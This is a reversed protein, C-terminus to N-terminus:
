QVTLSASAAKQHRRPFGRACGWGILGPPNGNPDAGTYYGVPGEMENPFEGIANPVTGRLTETVTGNAFDWTGADGDQSSATLIVKGTPQYRLASQSGDAAEVWVQRDDLEITMGLIRGALDGMLFRDEVPFSNAPFAYQGYLQSKNQFETTAVMLDFDASSMSIRDFAMGYKERGVTRVAQINKIPTATTPATWLPSVTVKLDSPMGWTSSFKIGKEDYTLSDILMATLLYEMRAAVGDRLNTVETVLYDEFVGSDRRSANGVEIRQLVNLMAQTLLRGHKLNPIKGQELRIPNAARVPARQDDAIISAITLRNQYYAMIEEDYAFVVPIRSLWKFQRNLQRIDGLEDMIALVNDVALISFASM